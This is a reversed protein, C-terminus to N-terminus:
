VYTRNDWYDDITFNSTVEALAGRVVRVFNEEYKVAYLKYLDPINDKMLKYQFSFSLTIPLGESRAQLPTSDAGEYYSFDINVVTSSFKIFSNIPGILYWGGTYVYSSDVSKSIKNYKLGYEIPEVTGASMAIGGIIVLLAVVASVIYCGAKPNDEFFDM